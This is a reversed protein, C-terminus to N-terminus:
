HNSIYVSIEQCVVAFSLFLQSLIIQIILITLITEYRSNQLRIAQSYFRDRTRSTRTKISRYQRGSPLLSILEHSPHCSDRIIKQAKRVCQQTYIDQLSLSASGDSSNEAPSEPQSRHRERVLRHHLWDPHVGRHLQLVIQPNKLESLIEETAQPLLSAPPGEDSSVSM